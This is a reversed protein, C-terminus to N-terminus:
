EPRHDRHGGVGIAGRQGREAIVDIVERDGEDDPRGAIVAPRVRVGAAAGGIRHVRYVRHQGPKALHPLSQDALDAGTVVGAGRPSIGQEGAPVAPRRAL